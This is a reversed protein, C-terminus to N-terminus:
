CFDKNRRERDNTDQEDKNMEEEEDAEMGTSYRYSLFVNVCTLHIEFCFQVCMNRSDLDTVICHGYCNKM